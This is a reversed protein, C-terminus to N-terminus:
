VTKERATRHIQLQPVIVKLKVSASKSSISCCCCVSGAPRRPKRKVAIPTFHCQTRYKTCQACGQSSPECRIKKKRCMDCAKDQLTLLHSHRPTSNKPSSVRIVVPREEEGLNPQARSDLRSSDMVQQEFEGWIPSCLRQRRQRFVTPIKPHIPQKAVQKAVHKRLPRNQTSITVTTCM